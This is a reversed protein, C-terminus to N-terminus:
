EETYDYHLRLPIESTESESEAISYIKNNRLMSANKQSCEWCHSEGYLRYLSCPVVSGDHLIQVFDNQNSVCTKPYVNRDINNIYIDHQEQPLHIDQDLNFHEQVPLTYFFETNYKEKFRQYNDEFDQQNYNFVLWTLIGKGGSYRNVTNLRSLVNKIKSGRRYREHLEQTSGALTFYIHGKCERFILGIKIYYVTTKTDGNIYLSIEIGRNKLYLLIQTLDPHSTPESIAGAITVYKLNPYQDLQKFIDQCTRHEFKDVPAIERVCLPCKLNCISTLELELRVVEEKAQEKYISSQTM